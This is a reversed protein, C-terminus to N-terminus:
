EKLHLSFASRNTKVITAIETTVHKKKRVIKPPLALVQADKFRNAIIANDNALTSDVVKSEIWWHLSDDAFSGSMAAYHENKDDITFEM